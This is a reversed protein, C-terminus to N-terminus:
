HPSTPDGGRWKVWGDDSSQLDVLIEGDWKALLSLHPNLVAYGTCM